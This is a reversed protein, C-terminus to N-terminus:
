LGNKSLGTPIPLCVFHLMLTKCIIFAKHPKFYPVWSQAAIFEGGSDLFMTIAKEKGLLEKFKNYQYIQKSVDRENRIWVEKEPLPTFNSFPMENIVTIPITINEIFALQAQGNNNIFDFRYEDDPCHVLIVTKDEVDTIVAPSSAFELRRTETQNGTIFLLFFVKMEDTFDTGDLGDTRLKDTFDIWIKSANSYEIM